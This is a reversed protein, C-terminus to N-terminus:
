ALAVGRNRESDLYEGDVVLHLTPVNRTDSSERYTGDVAEGCGAMVLGCIIAAIVGWDRKKEKM